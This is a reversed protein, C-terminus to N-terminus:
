EIIQLVRKEDGELVELSVPKVSYWITVLEADNKLKIKRLYASYEVLPILTKEGIVIPKGAVQKM